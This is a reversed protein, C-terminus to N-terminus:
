REDERLETESRLAEPWVDRVLSWALRDGIVTALLSAVTVLLTASAKRIVEPEQEQLCARLSEGGSEGREVPVIREDLFPFEHKCLNVARLLIANVGFHGIVQALGQSLLDLVRGSAAALAESSAGDGGAEHGLLRTVALRLRPTTDNWDGPKGM